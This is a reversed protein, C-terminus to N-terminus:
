RYTAFDKVERREFHLESPATRAQPYGVDLLFSPTLSDPIEFAAAVEKPDFFKVWCSGLGQATAELMMHTGVISTDMVGSNDGADFPSQWAKSRDYCVIFVVPAEYACRSLRNIKALADQSKLVYIHFPQLNKATPAVRAAELIADIKEQEVPTKAYYRVSFRAKALQLFTPAAKDAASEGGAEGCGAAFLLSEAGAVTGLGKIFEKRNM